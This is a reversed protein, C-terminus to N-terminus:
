SIEVKTKLRECEENFYTWSTSLRYARNLMTRLLGHKYKNDVHSHYHLLLGTKTHKVFVKTEVRHVRNLIQIGLFHLM